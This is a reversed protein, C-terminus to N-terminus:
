FAALDPPLPDSPQKVRATRAAILICLVGMVACIVFWPMIAMRRVQMEPLGSEFLEETM